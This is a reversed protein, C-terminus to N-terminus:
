HHGSGAGTPAAEQSFEATVTGTTAYGFNHNICAGSYVFVDLRGKGLVPVKATTACFENRVLDGSSPDRQYVQVIVLRDYADAVRFTVSTDGKRANFTLPDGQPLQEIQEDYHQTRVGHPGLYTQKQVEQATTKAARAGAVPILLLVLAIFCVNKRVM